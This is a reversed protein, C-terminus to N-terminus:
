DNLIQSVFINEDQMKLIIEDILEAFNKMANESYIGNDYHFDVFYKGDDTLNVEIDLTNQAASWFNNQTEEVECDFGGFKFYNQVGM